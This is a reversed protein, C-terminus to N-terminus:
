LFIVEQEHILNAHAIKMFIGFGPKEEAPLLDKCVGLLHRADKDDPYITLATELDSIACAIQKLERQAAARRTLAKFALDPSKAFGDEFVECLEIVKSASEVAAQFKGIKLEALAKNTWLPKLDKQLELGEEYAQIANFYDGSALYTNGTDKRKNAATNRDKRKQMRQDIDREMAQFNPDDKPLIPAPPEDDSEPEWKDWTSYNTIKSKGLMHQTKLWKDFKDKRWQRSANDRKYQEVKKELEEQRQSASILATNCRSCKTLSALQYETFCGRCWMAYDKGAGSGPKGFKEANEKAEIAERERISKIRIQMDQKKDIDEPSLKGKLLADVQSTIDDVQKLFAEPDEM